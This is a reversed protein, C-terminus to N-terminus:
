LIPTDDDRTRRCVLVAYRRRRGAAKWRRQRKAFASWVRLVLLADAIHRRSPLRGRDVSTRLPTCTSRLTIRERAGVYDSVLLGVVYDM